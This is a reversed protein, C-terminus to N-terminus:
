RIFVILLLLICVVNASAITFWGFAQNEQSLGAAAISAVILVSVSPALGM